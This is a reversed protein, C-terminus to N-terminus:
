EVHLAVRAFSRAERWDVGRLVHGQWEEELRAWLAQSPGAGMPASPPWSGARAGGWHPGRRACSLLLCSPPPEWSIGQRWGQTHHPSFALGEQGQPERGRPPLSPLHPGRIQASTLVLSPAAELCQTGLRRPDPFQKGVGKWRCAGLVSEQQHPSSGLSVGRASPPKRGLFSASM